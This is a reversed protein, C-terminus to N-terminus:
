FRSQVELFISRGSEVGTSGLQLPAATTGFELHHPHLLNSGTLALTVARSATWSVHANLETYSPSAPSPLAGIHRLDLYLSGSGAFTMTSRLAIQYSPDDGALAIGGIASSGPDFHLNEHLWNGGVSMRWWESMQYNGWAELGDTDGSMGNAFMLPFAPGPSFQASRLDSYVNYFTSISLSSKATPQSRYGLEYATLREDQFDGGRLLVVPGLVEFLDRDIRSPARVARSIAAWLLNNESVKWSLRANPLPEGRTYADHEYKTGVILKLTPSLSITDQLFANSYDLTREQPLFVPFNDEETRVGGGWVISQRSGWTFAHQVDLDYTNLEDSGVNPISTKTYDYYAQVQLSSAESFAHNWRTLLNHGSIGEDAAHFQDESGTYLDGQLTVLDGAQLWDLRFGGQSKHWADEANMGTAIVDDGYHFSDVYARYAVESGAQGGYQVSGRQELNGGGVRLSGDQTESAKRTIINIVGNVANAGWLTAGPGSIVEIREIDEPLVDQVDWSVGSHYPTYVTRGDILVLLKSAAPGNFGRATIAFSSSTIQAVQLNPALRLIDPLSRAGSNLIEERTIVYVAAAADSLSEGRKSVSTIEINMLDEISLSKLSSASLDDGQDGPAANSRHAVIFFCLSIAVTAIGRGVKHQEGHHWDMASSLTVSVDKACPVPTVTVQM